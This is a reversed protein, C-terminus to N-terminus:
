ALASVAAILLEVVAITAIAVATRGPGRFVLGLGACSVAVLTLVVTGRLQLLHDPVDVALDVHDLLVPLVWTAACSFAIVTVTLMCSVRVSALNRVTYLQARPTNM